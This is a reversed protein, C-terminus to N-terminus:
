QPLEGTTETLATWFTVEMCMGHAVNVILLLWWKVANTDAHLADPLAMKSACLFRPPCQQGHFRTAVVDRIKTHRSSPKLHQSEQEIDEAARQSQEGTTIRDETSWLEWTSGISAEKVDSIKNQQNVKAWPNFNRSGPQSHGMLFCLTKM